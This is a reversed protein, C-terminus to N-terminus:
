LISERVNLRKEDLAKGHANVCAWAEGSMLLWMGWPGLNGAPKEGPEVSLFCSILGGGVAFGWPRQERGEAPRGAADDTRVKKWSSFLNSFFKIKAAKNLFVTWVTSMLKLWIRSIPFSLSAQLAATWPTAFPWVRSLSQVAVVIYLFSSKGIKLTRNSSNSFLHVTMHACRDWLANGDGWIGRRGAPFASIQM